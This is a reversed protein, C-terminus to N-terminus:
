FQIVQYPDLLNNISKPMTRHGEDGRNEYLFGVILLIASKIADPVLAASGYGATFKVIVANEIARTSPWAADYTPALRAPETAIDIAYNGATATAANGDTDTYRIHSIAVSPSKELRIVNSAFEDLYLEWTAPMLQRNTYSEVHMRAAKILAAILTDDDSTSVQLHAKAESATVPESTPATHLKYAV